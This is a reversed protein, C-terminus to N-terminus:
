STAPYGHSVVLTCRLTGLPVEPYGRGGRPNLRSPYTSTGTHAMIVTHAHLTDNYM